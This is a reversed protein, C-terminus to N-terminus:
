SNELKKSVWDEGLKNSRKPMNKISKVDVIWAEEIKYRFCDLM